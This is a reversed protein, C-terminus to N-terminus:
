DKNFEYFREYVWPLDYGNKKSEEIWRNTRNIREDITRKNIESIDCIYRRYANLLKKYFRDLRYWVFSIFKKRSYGLYNIAEMIKPNDQHKMLVNYAKNMTVYPTYSKLCNDFSNRGDDRHLEAYFQHVFADQEHKFSYYCCLGVYYGNIDDEGNDILWKVKDYLNVRKEMGMGYQYLHELEHYITPYFDKSPHDNIFASVIKITNTEAEAESNANSGLMSILADYKEITDVFYMTYEVTLINGGKLFNDVQIRFNGDAFKTMNFKSMKLPHSYVDTIIEYGVEKGIKVVADSISKSEIIIKKM